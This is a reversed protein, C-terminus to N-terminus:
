SRLKNEKVYDDWEKIPHSEELNNYLDRPIVYDQINYGIMRLMECILLTCSKALLSKFIFRSFLCYFFLDKRSGRYPVKIFQTLLTLSVDVTGLDAVLIPNVMGMEHYTHEDIFKARSKEGTVLVVTNNDRSLMLGVHHIKTRGILGIWFGANRLQKLQTSKLNTDFDPRTYFVVSVKTPLGIYNM